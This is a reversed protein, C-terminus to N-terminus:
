IVYYNENSGFKVININDYAEIEEAIDLHTINHLVRINVTLDCRPWLTNNIFENVATPFTISTIWIGKGYLKYMIEHSKFRALIERSYQHCANGYIKILYNYNQVINTSEDENITTNTADQAEYLEFIIFPDNLNISNQETSSLHKALNSGRVSYANKIRDRSIDVCNLIENGLIKIIDEYTVTQIM